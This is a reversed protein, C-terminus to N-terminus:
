AASVIESEPLATACIAIGHYTRVVVPLAVSVARTTKKLKRGITSAANKPPTTTSRRPNRADLMTASRALEAATAAM